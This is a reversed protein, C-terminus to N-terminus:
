TTEVSGFFLLNIHFCFSFAGFAVVVGDFFLMTHHTLTGANADVEGPDPAGDVLL